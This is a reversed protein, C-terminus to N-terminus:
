TPVSVLHLSFCQCDQIKPGKRTHAHLNLDLSNTVRTYQRLTNLWQFPSKVLMVTDLLNEGSETYVM